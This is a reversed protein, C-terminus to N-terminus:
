LRCNRRRLQRKSCCRRENIWNEIKNSLKRISDPVVIGDEDMKGTDGCQM